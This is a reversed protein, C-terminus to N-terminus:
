VVWKKRISNRIRQRKSCKLRRIWHRLRFEESNIMKPLKYCSKRPRRIEQFNQMKDSSSLSACSTWGPAGYDRDDNGFLLPSAFTDVEVSDETLAAFAQIDWEMNLSDSFVVGMALALLINYNARNSNM